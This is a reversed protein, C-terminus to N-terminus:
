GLKAEVVTGAQGGAPHVYGVSPVQQARLEGDSLLTTLCVVIVSLGTMNRNASRDALNRM